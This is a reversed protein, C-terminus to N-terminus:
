KEKAKNKQSIEVVDTTLKDTITQFGTSNKSRSANATLSNKTLQKGQTTFVNLTSKNILVM